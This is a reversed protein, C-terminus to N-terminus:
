DVPKCDMPYLPKAFAVLPNAVAATVATVANDFQNNGRQQLNANIGKSLGISTGTAYRNPSNVVGDMIIRECLGGINEQINTQSGTHKSGYKDIGRLSVVM